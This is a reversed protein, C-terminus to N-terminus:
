DVGRIAECVHEPRCYDIRPHFPVWHFREYFLTGEHPRRAYDYGALPRLVERELRVGRLNASESAYSRILARKRQRESDDFVVVSEEARHEVFRQSRVGGGAFNYESFEWVDHTERFQAALFNTVDHDQHGGEYAPAWIRDVELVKARERIWRLSSRLHSKLNRAPIMQRGAITLELSQAVSM